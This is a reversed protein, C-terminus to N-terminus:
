RLIYVLAMNDTRLLNERVLLYDCFYEAARIVDYIELEYVSFHRETETLGRSFFAVPYDLHTDPFEQKLVACLAM